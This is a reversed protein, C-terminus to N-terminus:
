VVFLIIATFFSGLLFFLLVIFLVAILFSCVVRCLVHVRDAVCM